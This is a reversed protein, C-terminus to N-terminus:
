HAVFEAEDADQSTEQRAPIATPHVVLVSQPAHRLVQRAVSGVVLRVVGRQGRSGIVVTDAGREDAVRVLEDAADGARHEVETTFRDDAFRRATAEAAARGQDRIADTASLVREYTGADAAGLGLWWPYAPPAVDVVIAEAETGPLHATVFDVAAEAAPSGDVAVVMRRLHPLRAVLVPVPSRDIVEEATSGLLLTSLANHGRSGVVILDAGWAAAEAVIEAAPRGRRLTSTPQIESPTREVEARLVGELQEIAETEVALPDLTAGVPWPGGFLDQTPPLVTVFRVLGGSRAAVDRALECGVVAAESGDTAVLVRM